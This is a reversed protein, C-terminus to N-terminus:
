IYMCRNQLLYRHHPILPNATDCLYLGEDSRSLNTIRLDLNDGVFKLRKVLEKPLTKAHSNEKSYVTMNWMQSEGYINTGEVQSIAIHDYSPGNWYVAKSNCTLTIEDGTSFYEYEVNEMGSYDFYM